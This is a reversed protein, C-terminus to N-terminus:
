GTTAPRTSRSGVGAPRDGRAHHHGGAIKFFSKSGLDTDHDRGARSARLSPRRDQASWAEVAVAKQISAKLTPGAPSAHPRGPWARCPRPPLPPALALVRLVPRRWPRGSSEREMGGQRPRSGPDGPASLAFIAGLSAVAPLIGAAWPPQTWFVDLSGFLRESEPRRRAAIGDPPRARDRSGPTRRRRDLRGVVRSRCTRLLGAGTSSRRARRDRHDARHRRVRSGQVSSATARLVPAM